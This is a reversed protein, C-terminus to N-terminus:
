SMRWLIFLAITVLAGGIAATGRRTLPWRRRALRLLQPRHYALGQAYRTM